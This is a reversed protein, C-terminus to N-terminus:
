PLTFLGVFRDYYRALVHEDFHAEAAMRRRHVQLRADEQVHGVQALVLGQVDLSRPRPQDDAGDDHQRLNPGHLHPRLISCVRDIERQNSKQNLRKRIHEGTLKAYCDARSSTPVLSNVCMASAALLSLLAPRFTM